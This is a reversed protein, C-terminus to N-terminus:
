ETFKLSLKTSNAVTVEVNEKMIPTLENYEVKVSYTGAKLGLVVFKGEDNTLATTYVEGDSLISVVAGKVAKEASDVVSGEVTGTTSVNSAKIVPVFNFGNIGEPSSPDGKAKFSNNVDFDLLLETTLGGKVKISPDIFIKIGTQAGSPVKLDYKKGDKLIIEADAVYLRILDYDGVPVELDVLTETVGNTLELLNFKRSEESLVIFPNEDTKSSNRVEIKNITVNAESVLDSPFPADTLKLSLKGVSSTDDDSCSNVSFLLVACAMVTILYNFRKMFKMPKISKIFLSISCIYLLFYTFICKEQVLTMNKYVLSM